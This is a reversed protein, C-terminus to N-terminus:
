RGLDMLVGARERDLWLEARLRAALPDYLRNVLEDVDGGGGHGAAAAPAAGAVAAVAPTAVPAPEPAPEPAASPNEAARQVVPPAFTITNTGPDYSPRSAASHAGGSVEAPHSNM